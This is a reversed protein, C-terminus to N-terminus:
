SSTYHTDSIQCGIRPFLRAWLPDLIENLRFLANNVHTPEPEPESYLEWTRHQIKEKPDAFSTITNAPLSVTVSKPLYISTSLSAKLKM